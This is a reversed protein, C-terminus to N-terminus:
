ARRRGGAGCTARTSWTTTSCRRMTCSNSRRRSTSRRGARAHRVAAGGRRTLMPRLRKGGAEILYRALQPVMEVHSNPAARPDARQGQGDREADGGAAPRARRAGAQEKAAAASLSWAMGDTGSQPRARLGTHDARLRGPPQSTGLGRAAAKTFRWVDRVVGKQAAPQGIAWGAFPKRAPSSETRSPAATPWLPPSRARDRRRPRCRRARRGRGCGPARRGGEDLGIASVAAASRRWGRRWRSQRGRAAHTM